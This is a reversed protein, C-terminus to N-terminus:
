SQSWMLSLIWLALCIHFPTWQYPSSNNDVPSYLPQCVTKPQLCFIRRGVRFGLGGMIGLFFGYNLDETSILIIQARLNALPLISHGDRAMTLRVTFYSCIGEVLCLYALPDAYICKEQLRREWLYTGLNSCCCGDMKEDFWEFTLRDFSAPVDLFMVPLKSNIVDNEDMCAFPDMNEECRRTISFLKPEDLFYSRFLLLLSNTVVLLTPLPMNQSTM